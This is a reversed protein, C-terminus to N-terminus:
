RRQSACFCLNECDNYSSRWHRRIRLNYRGWSQEFTYLEFDDVRTHYPDQFRLPLDEGITLLERAMKTLGSM